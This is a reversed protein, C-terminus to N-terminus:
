FKQKMLKDAQKAVDVRTGNLIGRLHRQGDIVYLHESHVFSGNPGERRFAQSAFTDKILSYITKKDGTLLTWPGKTNLNKEKAYLKLHEPTDEEPNVTFGVFRIAKQEVGMEKEIKKMGEVLFPCTGNCSAFMFGVVTIQGDFISADRDVGDQDKLKFDPVKVLPTASTVKWVPNLTEVTYYPVGEGATNVQDVLTSKHKGIAEAFVDKKNCSSSLGCLLFIGFILKATSSRFTQL